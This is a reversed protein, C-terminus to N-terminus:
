KIVVVKRAPHDGIKVLYTGSTPIDFQCATAGGAISSTIQKGMIDYLTVTNGNANEVVLRSNVITVKTDIGDVDGIGEIFLFYALLATDQTVTLTYPNDTAGDSWHDFRYGANATAYVVADASYCDPASTINVGGMTEDASQADFSYHPTENFNSFYSWASQYSAMSGCPIYVPITSSVGSFANSGLAPATIALTTIEILGSCGSFAEYDISTVSKGITVSTLNTCYQFLQGSVSMVSDGIMVIQLNTKPINRLLNSHCNYTLSTISNCGDFAGYAISTVSKGITVSILGSCNEFASYGISTVPDPITVSTLSGCGRFASFGISTVSNGITVSTLGSCYEFASQGITTVSNGITISTLGSCGFFAYQKIETVGEPIVLNTLPSGSISLTHSYYTPNSSLGSFDIGCWQAITGTYNVTTLGSCHYFASEGISTVSNGITVSTLGSCGSFASNGISTVSNGITVSTLGSCGSFAGNGISNVSNPITISTLSNCNRFAYEGITTASNPITVSILVSCGSFAYDGISNVTNPITVSTLGSCGFFAYNGISAVSNPITVSTLGSCYYFACDGISTVNYTIGGYTVSSPIVLNGTPYTSYDIYPGNQNTVEAHDVVINYYLTQGSPAVASFDYAKVSQPIALAMILVAFFTITHKM